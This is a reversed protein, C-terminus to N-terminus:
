CKELRKRLYTLISPIAEVMLDRCEEYNKLSMEFPDRIQVSDSSEMLERFLIVPIKLEPFFEKISQRHLETMCLTVISNQLIDENIPQSRHNKLDLGVKDLARIANESARKGKIAYIGVSVVELSRVPATEKELAHALLREAMPSRCINATCVCTIYQKM